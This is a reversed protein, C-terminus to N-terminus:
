QKGGSPGPTLKSYLVLGVGLSGQLLLAVLDWQRFGFQAVLSLLLVVAVFAKARVPADTAVLFRIAVILVLVSAIFSYPM